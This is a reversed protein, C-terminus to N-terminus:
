DWEDNWRGGCCGLLLWWWGDEMVVVVVVEVVSWPIVPKREQNLDWNGSAIVVM